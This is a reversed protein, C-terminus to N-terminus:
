SAPFNQSVTMVLTSMHSFKKKTKGCGHWYVMRVEGGDYLQQKQLYSAECAGPGKCLSSGVAVCRKGVGVQEPRVLENNVSLTSVRGELSLDLAGGSPLMGPRRLTQSATSRTLELNVDMHIGYYSTLMHTEGCFAKDWQGM